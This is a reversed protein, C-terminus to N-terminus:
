SRLATTLRLARVRRRVMQVLLLLQILVSHWADSAATICDRIVYMQQGGSCEVFQDAQGQVQM